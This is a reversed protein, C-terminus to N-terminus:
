KLAEEIVQEFISYPQAGEVRVFGDEVNGIFFAPTGTVGLQEGYQLEGAIKSAYKGSAMCSEFEGVNLGIEGAWVSYMSDRLSAQNEFLIDHMEWFKGQEAACESAEAASQAQPHGGLPFHMYYFNAKGTDVYNQEISPLTQSYFRGCFPCEFDSFEVITVVANANGKMRADEPIDLSVKGGASDDSDQLGPNVSILDSIINNGDATVLLPVETGQYIVVIEYYGGSNWDISKLEVEGTQVQSNLFSVIKESVASESAVNAGTNVGFILAGLLLLGLVVSAVMWPNERAKSLYKGVPIEIVDEKKAQEPKSM